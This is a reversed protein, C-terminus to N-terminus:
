ESLYIANTGTDEVKIGYSIELAELVAKINDSKFTGSIRYSRLNVNSIIITKESYRNMEEVVAEMTDGSFIMEGNRWALEKKLAIEDIVVVKQVEDEIAIAQGAEMFIPTDIKVSREVEDLTKEAIDEVRDFRIKGETVIVDINEGAIKVSFATGLAQVRGEGVYVDFPRSSDHSVEFFAEGRLLRLTRSDKTYKVEVTTDTNLHIVSGDTLEQSSKDGKGVQYVHFQTQDSQTFMPQAMVFMALCFAISATVSAFFHAPRVVFWSKMVSNFSVPKSDCLAEDIALDLGEWVRALHRLAQAHRPSRGMWEALGLKDSSSLPGNDLQAMWSAAEMDLSGQMKLPLMSPEDVM